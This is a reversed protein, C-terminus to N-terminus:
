QVYSITYIHLLITIKCFIFYNNYVQKKMLFEVMDNTEKIEPIKTELSGKRQLLHGEMYKYKSNQSKFYQANRITKSSWKKSSPYLLISWQITVSSLKYTIRYLFSWCPSTYSWDSNVVFPAKPIGRPNAELTTMTPYFYVSFFSFIQSGIFM